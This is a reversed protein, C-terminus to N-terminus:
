SPSGGTAVVCVPSVRVGKDVEAVRPDVSIIKRNPGVVGKM